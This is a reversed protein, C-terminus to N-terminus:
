RESGGRVARSLPATGSLSGRRHPRTPHALEQVAARARPESAEGRKSAQNLAIPQLEELPLSGRCDICFSKEKFADTFLPEFIREM